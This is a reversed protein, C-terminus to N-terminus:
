SRGAARLFFDFGFAELSIAGTLSFLICFALVGLYQIVRGTRSRATPFLRQIYITGLAQAIFFLILAVLSGRTLWITANPGVRSDTAALGLVIRLYLLGAPGLLALLLYLLSTGQYHSRDM